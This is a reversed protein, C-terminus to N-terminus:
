QQTPSAQNKVLFRKAACLLAAKAYNGGALWVGLGFVVHVLAVIVPGGIVLIMPRELHMALYGCVALSPVATILSIGVLVLGFYFRPTPRQRTLSLEDPSALAKVGFRSGALWTTFSNMM